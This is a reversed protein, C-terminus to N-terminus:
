GQAEANNSSLTPRSNAEDSEELDHIGAGAALLGEAYNLLAWADAPSFQGIPDKISEALSGIPLSEDLTALLVAAGRGLLCRQAAVAPEESADPLILPDSPPLNKHSSLLETDAVIREFVREGILEHASIILRKDIWYRLDPGLSAAGCVAQLLQRQQLDLLCWGPLAALVDWTWREPADLNGAAHLGLLLRAARARNHRQRSQSLLVM